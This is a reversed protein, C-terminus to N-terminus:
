IIILSKDGILKINRFMTAIQYLNVCIKCPILYVMVYLCKAYKIIYFLLIKFILTVRRSSPPAEQRYYWCGLNLVQLTVRQKMMLRPTGLNRYSSKGILSPTSFINKGLTRGQGLTKGKLYISEGECLRKIIELEQQMYPNM